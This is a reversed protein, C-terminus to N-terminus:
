RDSLTCTYTKSPIDSTALISRVRLEPFPQKTSVTPTKTDGSHNRSGGYRVIASNRKPDPANMLSLFKDHIRRKHSCTPCPNHRIHRNSIEGMDVCQLGRVLARRPTLGDLLAAQNDPLSERRQRDPVRPDSALARCPLAELLEYLHRCSVTQTETPV